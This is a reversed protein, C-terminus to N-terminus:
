YPLVATPLCPDSLDSRDISNPDSSDTWSSLKKGHHGEDLPDIMVVVIRNIRKKVLIFDVM